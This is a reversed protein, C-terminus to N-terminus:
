LYIISTLSTVNSQQRM